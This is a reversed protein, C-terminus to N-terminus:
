GWVSHLTGHCRPSGLKIFDKYISEQKLDIPSKGIAAFKFPLRNVM